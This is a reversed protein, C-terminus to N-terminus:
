KNVFEQYKELLVNLSKGGQGYLNGPFSAWINSCATIAGAINGSQIMAIAHREKIQQLAIADQSAPTFDKLGLQLCYPHFWRYMLQYRGAATSKINANVTVLVNPHTSYDTFIHPSDIGDVIVDYGDNKTYKSTSTGESFAILALFAKLSDM